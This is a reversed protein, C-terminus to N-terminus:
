RAMKSFTVEARLGVDCANAASAALEPVEIAVGATTADNGNMIVPPQPQMGRDQSFTGYPGLLQAVRGKYTKGDVEVVAETGVRLKIYRDETVGAFVFLQSCDVLQFLPDGRVVAAGSHHYVSWVRSRAPLTIEAPPPTIRRELAKVQAERTELQQKLTATRLTLEDRQQRAYTVESGMDQGVDVGHRSSDLLFQAIGVQGAAVELTHEGVEARAEAAECEQAGSLGYSCLQLARKRILDAADRETKKALMEANAQEVLRHLHQARLAALATQRSTSKSRLEDSLDLLQKLSAVDARATELESQAARLAPDNVVVPAVAAIKAGAALVSFNRVQHTLEGDGGARVTIAPGAVVAYSARLSLQRHAFFGLGGLILACSLLRKAVSKWNSM